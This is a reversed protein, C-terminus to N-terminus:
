VRLAAGASLMISETHDDDGSDGDVDGNSDGSCDDDGSGVDFGDGSGSDGRGGGDDGCKGSCKKTSQQKAGGVSRIISEASRQSYSARLTRQFYSVRLAAKSM